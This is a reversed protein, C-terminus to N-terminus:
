SRCVVRPCTPGNRGMSKDREEAFVSRRYRRSTGDGRNVRRALRMRPPGAVVGDPARGHGERRGHHKSKRLQVPVEIALPLDPGATHIDMCNLVCM